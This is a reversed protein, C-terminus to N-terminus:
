RQRSRHQQGARARDADLAAILRQQEGVHFRFGGIASLMIHRGDGTVLIGQGDVLQFHDVDSWTLRRTRVVGVITVGDPGTSVRPRASLRAGLGAGGLWVLGLLRDGLAPQILGAIGILAFVGCISWLIRRGSASRYTGWSDSRLTTAGLYAM